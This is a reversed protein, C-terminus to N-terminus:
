TTFTSTPLGSFTNPHFQCSSVNPVSVSLSHKVASLVVKAGGADVVLLGAHPWELDVSAVSTVVAADPLEPLEPLEPLTTVSAASTVEQVAEVM